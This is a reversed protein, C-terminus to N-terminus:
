KEGERKVSELALGSADTWCAERERVARIM